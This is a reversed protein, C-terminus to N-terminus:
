NDGKNITLQWLTPKNEIRTWKHMTDLEEISSAVDIPSPLFYKFNFGVEKFHKYMYNKVSNLTWAEKSAKELLLRQDDEHIVDNLINLEKKNLPRTDYIIFLGATNLKKLCVNIVQKPNKWHHFCSYSVILDISDDEISRLYHADDIIYNIKNEKFNSKSINIMEKNIEVANIVFNTKKSFQNSLYGNGLGLDLFNINRNVELNFSNIINSFILPYIHSQYSKVLSDYTICDASNLM